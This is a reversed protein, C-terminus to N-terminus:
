EPMLEDDDEDRYNRKRIWFRIFGYVMFLTAIVFLIQYIHNSIYTLWTINKKLNNQWDHELEDFPISLAMKISFGIRRGKSLYDLIHKTSDPGYRNEIYEIFSKSQEYALLLQRDRSPFTRNLSTMPILRGSLVAQKLLNKNEGTIIEAIGDSINQCIGENLWRPLEGDKVYTHLFLHCLEHKLTTELSFPRTKMKSNDIIILNNKSIAVAVVPGSHIMSQFSARDKILRITPRFTIDSQFRKEIDLKIEPYIRIVTEAVKKLPKEFQVMVFENEISSNIDSAICLAPITIVILILLFLSKM